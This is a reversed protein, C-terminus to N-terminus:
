PLTVTAVVSAAAREAAPSNGFVSVLAVGAPSQPAALQRAGSGLLELALAQARPSADAPLLLLADAGPPESLQSGDFTRAPLDLTLYRVVDRDARIDAPLFVKVGAREGARAIRGMATAEPQFENLTANSHPLVGFILWSNYTLSVLLALGGLVVAVRRGATDWRQEVRQWLVQAALAALVCTPALAGLARMAHPADVSFVGSVLSLCVWLMLFIQLRTRTLIALLVGVAFLFGVLPDVMPLGAFFHRANPDGALHWMGLYPPLNRLILLLPARAAPDEFNTIAVLAIRRNYGDTDGLVFGILPLLVIGCALVYPVVYPVVYPWAYPRLMSRGGGDGGGGCAGGGDGGGGGGGDQRGGGSGGIWVVVALLPLLPTLRGTHYAYAALGALMGALASLLLAGTSQTAQRQTRQTKTTFNGLARLMLGLALLGLLQDLTAPFAWRSMRLSWASWSLLAAALLAVRSGVLPRVAWWLALPTLAGVLASVIRASWVDPGFLAVVPAMIYFLLAPLDAGEVVYIPRFAADHWIQWALMGHRAEDKWLGWPVTDLWMVRLVIAMVCLGFLAAVGWGDVRDPLAAAHSASRWRRTCAAAGVGMVILGVLGALPWWPWGVTPFLFGGSAPIWALGALPVLAFAIFPALRPKGLRLALLGALLPWAALWLARQPAAISGDIPTARLAALAVGLVRADGPPSFPAIELRYLTDDVPRTPLLLHYTRWGPQVAFTALAGQQGRLTLPPSGGDPRPATLQVRVLAPRGDFGFLALAAAPTSWRFFVGDSSERAHFGVLHRDRPETVNALALPAARWGGVLAIALALLTALLLWRWIGIRLLRLFVPAQM